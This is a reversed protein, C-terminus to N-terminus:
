AIRQDRGPQRQAHQDHGGSTKQVRGKMDCAQLPLDAHRPLDALVGQFLLDAFPAHADDIPGAMRHQAAARGDFQQLGVVHRRDAMARKSRSTCSALWSSADRVRDLDVIEAARGVADEVIRHFVQGTGRERLQDLEHPGDRRPAARRSNELLNAARQGLSVRNAQDMAVDLGCLMM